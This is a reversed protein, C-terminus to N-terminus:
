TIRLRTLIEALASAKEVEVAFKTALLEAPM